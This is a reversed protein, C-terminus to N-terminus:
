GLALFAADHDENFALIAPQHVRLLGLIDDTSSNGRRIWIVKPPTGFLFSRQRFDADKTVIVLAHEAAYQWISEDDARELGVNRVHMSGAYLVSLEQLLRPSLNQDLLLKV